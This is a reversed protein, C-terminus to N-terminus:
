GAGAARRPTTLEAYLADAEASLVVGEEDLLRRAWQAAKLLTATLHVPSVPRRVMNIATTLVRVPGSPLVVATGITFARDRESRDPDTLWDTLIKRAPASPIKAVPAADVVVVFRQRRAYAREVADVFAHMGEASINPPFRVSLLPWGRDEVVAFDDRSANAM